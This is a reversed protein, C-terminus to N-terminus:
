KPAETTYGQRWYTPFLDYGIEVEGTKRNWCHFGRAGISEGTSKLVPIWRHQNRPEPELYFEIREEAEEKSACPEADYLYRNVEDNSFQQYFFAADDYSICRLLLRETELDRFM